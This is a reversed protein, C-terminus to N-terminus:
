VNIQQWVQGNTHLADTAVEPPISPKLAQHYKMLHYWPVCDNLHHEFHLSINFPMLVGRLPFFSSCSRCFPNEQQGLKGGHEMTIKLTNLGVLIQLGLLSAIAVAWSLYLTTLSL